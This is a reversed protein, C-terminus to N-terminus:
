YEEDTSYDYNMEMWTVAFEVLERQPILVSEANGIMGLHHTGGSQYYDKGLKNFQESHEDVDKLTVWQKEGDVLM